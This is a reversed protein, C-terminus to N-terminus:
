EIRVVTHISTHVGSQDVGKPRDWPPHPIAKSGEKSTQSPSISYLYTLYPTSKFTYDDITLLLYYTLLNLLLYTLLLRNMLFLWNCECDWWWWWGHVMAGDLRVRWREVTCRCGSPPLTFSFFPLLNLRIIIIIFGLFVFQNQIPKKLKLEEVCWRQLVGCWWM